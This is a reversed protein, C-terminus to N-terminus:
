IAAPEFVSKWDPRFAIGLEVKLHGPLFDRAAAAPVGRKVAEDMTEGVITLCTGPVTESLIPESIAPQEATCRRSTVVPAYAEEPGQVLSCVINQRAHIGGFFDLQVAEETAEGFLSPHCPYMVFYMLDDREPLHGSLPPTIGPQALAASGKDSVKAYRFAYGAKLLNDTVRGGM